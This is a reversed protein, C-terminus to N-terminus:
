GAVIIGERAATCTTDSGVGSLVNSLFVIGAVIIGDRGAVIIGERGAVIIGDKQSDCSPTGNRDSVMIGGNAFTAGFTMVIALTITTITNKM